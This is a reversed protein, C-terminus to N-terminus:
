ETVTMHHEVGDSVFVEEVNYINTGIVFKHDRYPRDSVESDRVKLVAVAGSIDIGAESYQQLNHEVITTVDSDILVDLSDKYIASEGFMAYIKDIRSAFRDDFNSM